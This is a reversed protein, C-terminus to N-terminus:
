DLHDEGPRLAPHHRLLYAALGERDLIAQAAAWDLPAQAHLSEIIRIITLAVEATQELSRSRVYEIAEMLVANVEAFTVAELINQAAGAPSPEGGVGVWPRVAAAICQRDKPGGGEHTEPHAVPAHSAAESDIRRPWTPQALVDNVHSMVLYTARGILKLNSPSVSTMTNGVVRDLLGMVATSHANLLMKLAVQRHLGLPDNQDPLAVHVMLDEESLLPRLNDASGVQRRDTILVCCVSAQHAHHLDLFRRLGSQPQDCEAVETDWLALVGVDGAQPGRREVNSQAFSFDYCFEQDNGARALSRLAADRLYPDPVEVELPSRYFVPDFGRFDRGLLVRWAEHLNGAETWVQVWCKRKPEEVTDLPLLRFTPSRETGDIFVVILGSKAFYTAFHGRRYASCELRTFRAIAPAEFAVAARISEFAALRGAIRADDSYGLAAMEERSLFRRLVSAIGQELFTGVVFTEITTAQMRTSGTIAQPGTTLNIKTISANDLVSASRDLPRLRDDPNNYIFFLRESAPHGADKTSYQAAAALITGIVSSTEGGETVCIVVDERGIGRDRLQLRGILQLDEFGELSSVLARDGGTMEGIVLSEIDQPLHPRLKSWVPLAKVKLWFPRWLSSEMQKALRGTAGCGYIYIRRGSLIADAVAAAALELAAPNEVLQSIKTSIDRDTALLMRIGAEVDTELVFSLNWTAPHRQETLLNFLHFQRKNEVYDVSQPSPTLHLLNLLQSMSLEPTMSGIM